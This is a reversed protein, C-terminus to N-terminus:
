FEDEDVRECEAAAHIKAIMRVIAHPVDGNYSPYTRMCRDVDEDDERNGQYMCLGNPMDAERNMEYVDGNIDVLFNQHQTTVINIQPALGTRIDSSM